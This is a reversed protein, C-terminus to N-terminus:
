AHLLQSLTRPNMGQYYLEIDGLFVEQDEHFSDAQLQGDGIQYTIYLERFGKPMDPLGFLSLPSRLCRVFVEIFSLCCHLLHSFSPLIHSADVLSAKHVAAYKIKSEDKSIHLFRGAGQENVLKQVQSTVTVTLEPHKIGSWTAKKILLAMGTRLSAVPM